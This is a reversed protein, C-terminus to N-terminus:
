NRGLAFLGSGIGGLEVGHDDLVTSQVDELAIAPLTVRKDVYSTDAAVAPAALVTVALLSVAPLLRM